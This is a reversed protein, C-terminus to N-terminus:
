LWGEGLISQVAEQADFRSHVAPFICCCDLEHCGHIQALANVQSSPLGDAATMPVFLPSEPVGMAGVGFALVMGLTVAASRWGTM